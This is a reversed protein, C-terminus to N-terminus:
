VRWILMAVFYAVLGLALLVLGTFARSDSKLHMYFAMVLGAKIAALTLLSIAQGPGPAMLNPIQVEIFTFVALVVAIAVYVRPGVGHPETYEHEPPPAEHPAQSM